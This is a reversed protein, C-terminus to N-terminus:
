PNAQISTTEGTEMAGVLGKRALGIAAVILMITIVARVWALPLRHTLGAGIRAGIVATPAMCGALILARWVAAPGNLGAAAYLGPLSWLKLAAGIMATLCIVASSTAIAQRLKVKCLM